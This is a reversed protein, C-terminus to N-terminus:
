WRFCENDENKINILGRMSNCLEVPLEIYSSGKLPHYSMINIHHSDVQDILWGSGESVWKEITDMIEQRSYNLEIDIDTAKTITKAKCNFYATKFVWENM